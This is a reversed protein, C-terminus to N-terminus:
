GTLAGVSKRGRLRHKSRGRGEVCWEHEARPLDYTEFLSRVYRVQLPMRQLLKLTPSRRRRKASPGRSFVNSKDRSVKAVGRRKAACFGSVKETDVVRSRLLLAISKCEPYQMITLMKSDAM